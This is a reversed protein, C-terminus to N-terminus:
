LILRHKRGPDIREQSKLVDYLGQTVVVLIVRLEFRRLGRVRKIINARPLLFLEDLDEKTPKRLGM